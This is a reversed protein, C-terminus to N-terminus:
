VDDVGQGHLSCLPYEIIQKQCSRKLHGFDGCNHCPGIPRNVPIPPPQRPAGPGRLYNVLPLSGGPMPPQASSPGKKRIAAARSEENKKKLRVVKKEAASEAKALRKEDDSDVALEDSKYAEVVSWGFESRDAMKIMKQREEMLKTGERIGEKIKSATGSSSGTISETLVSAEDLIDIVQENFEHQQKHGKKNFEYPRERRAKKVIREASEDQSRKMDTELQGMRAELSSKSESIADM